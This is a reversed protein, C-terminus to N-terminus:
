RSTEGPVLEYVREPRTRAGTVPWGVSTDAYASGAFRYRKALEEEFMPADLIILDWRGQEIAGEMGAELRAAPQGAGGRLVDQLAMSHATPEKGAALVLGNHHPIWVEGPAAAIRAVLEDNAARTADSPLHDRPDFVLLGFQLLVAALVVLRTLPGAKGYARGATVALLAALLAYAPLLVNKWGGAHLRSIWASGVFALAWVLWRVRESREWPSPLLLAFLALTAIPLPALLDFRWFEHLLPLAIEHASTLKLIYYYMHSGFIADTAFWALPIGILAALPFIWRLRGRRTLLVWTAIPAAVVLASQKTMGALIFLAASLLHGRADDRRDLAIVAGMLLALYLSDVRGVDFWGGGIEFCAAYMGAGVLGWWWPDTRRRVLDFIMWFVALTSLLSVLRLPVYGEGLLLGLGACVWYYLPPYIFPTWALSPLPYLPQGETVRHVMALSGSEMWELEYPYGMRAVAIALVVLLFAGGAVILLLRLLRHWAAASLFM